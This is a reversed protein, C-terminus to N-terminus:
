RSAPDKLAALAISAQLLAMGTRPNAQSGALVGDFDNPFIQIEKAQRGGTCCGRRYSYKAPTGCIANVILKSKVAMEHESRWAFDVLKEPHGPVFSGSGGVHGTDTSSTAYGM